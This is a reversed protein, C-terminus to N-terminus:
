KIILTAKLVNQCYWRADDLRKEKLLDLMTDSIPNRSLIRVAVPEGWEVNAKVFIEYERM